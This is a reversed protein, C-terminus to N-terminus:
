KGTGMKVADLIDAGFFDMPLGKSLSGDPNVDINRIVPSNDLDADTTFYALSIDQHDLDGRAALRRLRLLINDSHTETITLVARKNWLDALLDGFQLQARPDLSAEPHQLLLTSHPNMLAAQVIIPLCNRVASGHQPLPIDGQGQPGPATAWATRPHDPHVQFSVPGTGTIAHLHREVLHAAAGKNAEQTLAEQQMHFLAALTNQGRAGVHTPVHDPIQIIPSLELSQHPTAKVARLHRYIAERTRKIADRPLPNSPSPTILPPSSHIGLPARIQLIDHPSQGPHAGTSHTYTLTATMDPQDSGQNRSLRFPNPILSGPPRTQDNAEALGRLASLLAMITSKGSNNPGVLITIPRVRLTVQQSFIRYNSVTIETLM